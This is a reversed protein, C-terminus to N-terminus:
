KRPEVLNHACTVLIPQGDIYQLFASGVKSAKKEDNNYTEMMLFGILPEKDLVYRLDENAEMKCVDM